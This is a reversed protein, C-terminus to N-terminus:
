QRGEVRPKKKGLRTKKSYRRAAGELYPGTGGSLLLVFARKDVQSVSPESCGVKKGSLKFWNGEVGAGQQSKEPRRRGLQRENQSLVATTM